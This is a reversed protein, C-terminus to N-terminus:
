QSNRKLLSWCCTTPMPLYEIDGFNKHFPKLWTILLVDNSEMLYEKCIESFYKSMRDCDKHNSNFFNLTIITNMCLAASNVCSGIRQLMLVVLSLTMQGCSQQHQQAEEELRNIFSRILPLITHNNFKPNYYDNSTGESAQIVMSSSAKFDQRPGNM